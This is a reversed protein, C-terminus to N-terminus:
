TGVLGPAWSVGLIIEAFNNEMQNGDLRDLNRQIAACIDPINVIIKLEKKEM